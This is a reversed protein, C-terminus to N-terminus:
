LRATTEAETRFRERADASTGASPLLKIAVFRGLSVQYAKFVTGMGGSGIEELLEYDGFAAKRPSANGGEVDAEKPVMLGAFLCAPCLGEPSKPQIPQGCAPCRGSEACLNKM